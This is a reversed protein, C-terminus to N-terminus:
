NGEIVDWLNIDDATEATGDAGLSILDYGKGARNSGVKYYFENGWGDKPTAELYSPVLEALTQPYGANPNSGSFSKLSQDVNRMTAKTAAEKGRLLTPAFAIVAVGMLLGILAIVLTIELLSFGRAARFTHQATRSKM